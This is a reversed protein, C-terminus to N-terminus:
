HEIKMKGAGSNLYKDPHADRLKTHLHASKNNCIHADSGRDHILFSEIGNTDTTFTIYMTTLVNPPNTRAPTPSPSRSMKTCNLNKQVQASIKSDQLANDVKTCTSLDKTWGPPAKSPVLYPCDSYWMKEGCICTPIDAKGKAKSTRGKRFMKGRLPQPVQHVQLQTHHLRQVPTKSQQPPQKYGLAIESNKLRRM